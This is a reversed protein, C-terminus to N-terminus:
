NWPLPELNPSGAQHNLHQLGITSIILLSYQEYNQGPACGHWRSELHFELPQVSFRLQLATLWRLLLCPSTIPPLHWEIGSSPLPSLEKQVTRAISVPFVSGLLWLCSFLSHARTTGPRSLHLWSSRQPKSVLWDLRSPRPSSSLLTRTEFCLLIFFETCLAQPLVTSTSWQSRCACAGVHMYM